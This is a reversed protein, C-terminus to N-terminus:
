ESEPYPNEDLIQHQYGGADNTKYVHFKHGQKVVKVNPYLEEHAKNDPQAKKETKNVAEKVPAKKATKM